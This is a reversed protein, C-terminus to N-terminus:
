VQTEKDYVAMDIGNRAVNGGGTSRSGGPIRSPSSFPSMFASTSPSLLAPLYPEANDDDDDNNNNNDDDRAAAVAALHGSDDRELTPAATRLMSSFSYTASRPVDSGGSPSSQPEGDDDDHHHVVALPTEEQDVAATAFATADTAANVLHANRELFLRLRAAQRDWKEHVVELAARVDQDTFASAPSSAAQHRSHGPAGAAPAPTSRGTSSSSSGRVASVLTRRRASSLKGGAIPSFPEHSDARIEKELRQLSAMRDHDMAPLYLLTTNRILGDVLATMAQLNIDNHDCYIERLVRNEDLVESLTSAGQLGLKQDLQSPSLLKRHCLALTRPYFFFHVYM